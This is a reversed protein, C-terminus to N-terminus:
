FFVLRTRGKKRETFCLTCVLLRGTSMVHCPPNESHQSDCAAVHQTMGKSGRQATWVSRTKFQVRCTKQHVVKGLYQPNSNLACLHALLCHGHIQCFIHAAHHERPQLCMSCWKRKPFCWKAFAQHIRYTHSWSYMWLLRHHDGSLTVRGFYTPM